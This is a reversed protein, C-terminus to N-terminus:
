VNTLEGICCACMKGRRLARSITIETGIYSVVRGPVGFTLFGGRKYVFM